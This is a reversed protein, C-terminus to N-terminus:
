YVDEPTLQTPEGTETITYHAFEGNHDIDSIGHAIFTAGDSTVWYASRIYGDADWRLETWGESPTLPHPDSQYHLLDNIAKTESYAEIYQNNTAKYTAEASQIAKLNEPVESRLSRQNM